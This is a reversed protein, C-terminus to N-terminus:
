AAAPVTATISTAIPHTSSTSLGMIEIGHTAVAGHSAGLEVPHARGSAITLSVGNATGVLGTTADYRKFYQVANSTINAGDLGLATLVGLPDGHEITMRPEGGTRLAVRPYKDGDSRRSEYRQGLSISAGTVGPVGTGNLVLPGLTHLIPQATLSPLANNNTQTFPHAAGDNSLLVAECDAMLIGDQDTSVSTIYVCATCSATLAFKTHVSTADKILAAYKALYVSFTSASLITLGTLAYIDQFHCRFSVRPNSGPVAILSPYENGSHWSVNAMVDHSFGIREVAITTSGITIPALSLLSAAM